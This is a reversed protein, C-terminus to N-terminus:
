EVTEQIAFLGGEIAQELVHNLGNIGYTFPLKNLSAWSQYESVPLGNGSIAILPVNNSNVENVVNSIMYSTDTAGTAQSGIPQISLLASSSNGTLLINQSTGQNWDSINELSLGNTESSSLLGLSLSELTPTFSFTSDSQLDVEVEIAQGFLTFSAANPLYPGFLASSM